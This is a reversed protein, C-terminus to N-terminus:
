IQQSFINKQVITLVIKSVSHNKLKNRSIEWIYYMLGAILIWIQFFYNPNKFRCSFTSFHQTKVLFHRRFFFYFFRRVYVRWLCFLGQDQCKLKTAFMKKEPWRGFECQDMILLRMRFKDVEALENLVICEFKYRHGSILYSGYITLWLNCLQVSIGWTVPM